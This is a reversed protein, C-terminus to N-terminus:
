ASGKTEMAPIHRSAFLFLAQALTYADAPTLRITAGTGGVNYSVWGTDNNFTLGEPPLRAPDLPHIESMILATM